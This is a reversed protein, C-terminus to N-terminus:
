QHGVLNEHGHFRAPTSAAWFFMAIASGGQDSARESAIFISDHPCPVVLFVYLLVQCRDSVDRRPM